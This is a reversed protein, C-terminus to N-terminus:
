NQSNDHANRAEAERKSYICGCYNQRYLNYIASLECSRKYGNKKKFDSYLWNVGYKEALQAGISNLAQANKHPSISLTTTFFDFGGKKAAKASEELRLRYCKMCRAGGERENELGAAIREFEEPSYGGDLFKITSLAPLEHILRKLEEARKTYEEHETINPNYFYVTIDFYKNLYELVYSSCPACCAHLLLSPRKNQETIEKLTKDLIIQYNQKM